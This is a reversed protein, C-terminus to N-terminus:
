PPVLQTRNHRYWVKCMFTHRRVKPYPPAPTIYVSKPPAQRYAAFKRVCSDKEISQIPVGIYKIIHTIIISLHYAEGATSRSFRMHLFDSNALKADRGTRWLWGPLAATPHKATVIWTMWRLAQLWKSSWLIPHDRGGQDAVVLRRNQSKSGM